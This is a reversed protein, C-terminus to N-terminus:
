TLVECGNKSVAVTHEFQASLSGDATKVTWDDDAVYNEPKGMNVIPEIALTMGEELTPGTDKSGFNPIDPPEHVARGVGHGVCDRVPAFGQREVTKQITASIDGVKCGAKIVKIAKKLAQQVTKLFFATEDTINGVPVTIASDTCLDKYWIGCDIGIIDGEELKRNSPIGHVVEDNISTCLAAPFGQYGKFSPTVGHKHILTEAYANLEETTIGPEVKSAVERLVEHLIKGGYRMADIESPSKIDIM